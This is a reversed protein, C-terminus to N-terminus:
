SIEVSMFENINRKNWWHIALETAKVENIAEVMMIIPVATSIVTNFSYRFTTTAQISLATHNKDKFPEVHQWCTLLSLVDLSKPKMQWSQKTALVTQHTGQTNNHSYFHLRTEKAPDVEPDGGEGRFCLVNKDHLNAAIAIHKEDVHKHHVGQISYQLNLPNLLRALTNACSRLGFSARLQIISDLPSHFDHLDMYAIGQNNIKDVADVRTQTQIKDLIGLKNFAEKVYLRQSEPESTGHIFFRYGNQQLMSLALLYWPLQRRKGAYCGIDITRDKKLSPYSQQSLFLRCAKVFGTLEEVSEERVRLLMLFAGKQEPLVEDNLLMSMATFAEQETLYRGVSKGAGIAKIFPAFAATM